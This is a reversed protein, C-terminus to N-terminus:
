KVIALDLKSCFASASLRLWHALSRCGPVQAPWPPLLGPSSVCSWHRKKEKLWFWWVWHGWSNEEQDKRCPSLAQLGRKTRGSGVTRGSRNCSTWATSYRLWERFTLWLCHMPYQLIGNWWCQLGSLTGLSKCCQLVRARVHQSGCCKLTAYFVFFHQAHGSYWAYPHIDLKGWTRFVHSYQEHSGIAEEVNGRNGTGAGYLWKILDTAM